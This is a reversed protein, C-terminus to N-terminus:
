SITATSPHNESVMEQEGHIAFGLKTIERVSALSREANALGITAGSLRVVGRSEKYRHVTAPQSQNRDGSSAMLPRFCARSAEMDFAKFRDFSGRRNGEAESQVM